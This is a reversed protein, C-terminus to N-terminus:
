AEPPAGAQDPAPHHWQRAGAQRLLAEVDPSVLAPHLRRVWDTQSALAKGLSNLNYAGSHFRQSAGMGTAVVLDYLGITLSYHEEVFRVSTTAVHERPDL